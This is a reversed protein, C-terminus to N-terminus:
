ATPRRRTHGGALLTQGFGGLGPQRLRSQALPSDQPMIRCETSLNLNLERDATCALAVQREPRAVAPPFLTTGHFCKISWLAPRPTVDDGASIVIPLVVALAPTGLFFARRVSQPRVRRHARDRLRPVIEGVLLILGPGNGPRPNPAALDKSFGGTQIRAAKEGLYIERPSM